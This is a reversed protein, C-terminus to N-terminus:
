SALKEGQAASASLPTTIRWTSMRSDSQVSSRLSRSDLSLELVLSTAMPVRRVDHAGDVRDRLNGFKGVGSAGHNVNVRNMVRRVPWNIDFHKIAVEKDTRRVLKEARVHAREVAFLVQEFFELRVFDARCGVGNRFAPFGARLHLFEDGSNIGNNFVESVETAARIMRGFRAAFGQKGRVARGHWVFAFQGCFKDFAQEGNGAQAQETNAVRPAEVFAAGRNGEAQGFARGGFEGGKQAIAANEGPVSVEIGEVEGFAKADFLVAADEAHAEDM